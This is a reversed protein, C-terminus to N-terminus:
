KLSSLKVLNEFDAHRTSLEDFTGTDVICGDKMYVLKNCAKLTSLRHAIAIITKHQGIINLMETIENETQVDLSSTAEDLILIEPKRYLARAIALRQKQGQSLGNSNILPKANIGEGYSSVVDYLRVAQLTKIIGEEDICDDPIGWAINNKFSKDLVNIQQPVYGIMNRFYPFNKYTLELGDLLIKGSQIPLLGTLIDAFTSKGAGSLGIIGIFDGKEITLSLNKIVDKGENYAFYINKLEICHKFPLRKKNNLSYPKFKNLQFKDYYENIKSVYGRSANINIISTQIRNLAPAIRFISAAIVAYSAILMSNDTLNKITIIIGLLLLSLVILIETIYPPISAYFQKKVEIKCLDKEKRFYNKLFADEASLIKFEKLNGIIEMVTQNYIQAKETIIHALETAKNKFCRNQIGVSLVIFIITVTAALPFKVFLISIIMIIIITNTVLNLTRMVFGDITQGTLTTLIYKKDPLSINMIDKYPAYIFYQMFRGTLDSKWDTVFKFQFYTNLIIYLNKFIFILLIAIGIIFATLKPNYIGTLHIYKTYYASNTIIDPSVILIIFPSILAIGIFELFGAFLATIFFLFLKLYRKQGFNIIFNKFNNLKM